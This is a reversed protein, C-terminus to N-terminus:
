PEAALKCLSELGMSALAQNQVSASTENIARAGEGSVTDIVVRLPRTGTPAEVLDLMARAVAMSDPPAPSSLVQIISQEIAGPIAAAPGYDAVRGADDPEWAAMNGAIATPHTGPELISVEVGHSALEYAYSEALAELAFKSASYAATCPVVVRGMVSSVFLLAGRSARLAPLTARCVRQVGFVNVEFLDRLKTASYGEAFGLGAVGANNIVVDLGDAEALVSEVGAAVSADDSVDLEHVSIGEIMGLEAAANANVDDVRRM